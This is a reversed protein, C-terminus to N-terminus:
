ALLTLGLFKSTLLESLLLSNDYFTNSFMPVCHISSMYMETFYFPGITRLEYWPICLSVPGCCRGDAM